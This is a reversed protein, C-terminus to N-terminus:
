MWVCMPLFIKEERENEIGRSKEKEREEELQLWVYQLHCLFFVVCIQM